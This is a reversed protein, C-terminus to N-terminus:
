PYSQLTYYKVPLTYITYLPSSMFICHPSLSVLLPLIYITYLPSSMFKCHPSLSVLLPLIYLTYHVLCSYIKLVILSM